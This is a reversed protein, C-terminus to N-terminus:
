QGYNPCMLEGLLYGIERLLLLWFCLFVIKMRKEGLVNTSKPGSKRSVLCCEDGEDILIMGISTVVSSVEKDCLYRFNLM